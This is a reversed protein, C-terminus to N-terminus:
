CLLDEADLTLNLCALVLPNKFNGLNSISIFSSLGKSTTSKVLTFRGYEMSGYQWRGQPTTEQMQYPFNSASFKESFDLRSSEPIEKGAKRELVLIFRCLIETVRLNTWFAMVLSSNDFADSGSRIGTTIRFFQSGSSEYISASSM